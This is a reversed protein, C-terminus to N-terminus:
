KSTRRGNGFYKKYDAEVHETWPRETDFVRIEHISEGKLYLTQWMPYTTDLSHMFGIPVPVEIFEFPMMIKDGYDVKDKILGPRFKVTLNCFRKTPVEKYKRLLQQYNRFDQESFKMLKEAQKLEEIYTSLEADDDPINDFPFIDIFIGQNEIKLKKEINGLTRATTNSNRLKAHKLGIRIGNKLESDFDQLFYPAKFESSLKMLEDYDKRPLMVDIDDDWPVFGKHRITGLLSGGDIFWTLNHKNCIKSLACLLDIEIAWVKKIDATVEHGCRIENGLFGHPIKKMNKGFSASM